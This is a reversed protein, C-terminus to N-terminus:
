PIWRSVAMLTLSFLIPLPSSTLPMPLRAGSSIAASLSTDVFNAGCESNIQEAASPYTNVIDAKRNSTAAQYIQMIQRTCSGCSPAATEPLTSNLPLYYLYSNSPTTNNTIANTFCYNSSTDDKDILCTAKYVTGYAKMGQHTQVVLANETEFEKGCNDDDILHSALDNFYDTCKDVDSACAADLVQTIGFRSKEAEFFAQSGQLLLSIPYCAKFTENPLFSNIFNPCSPDSFNAAFGGYLPSPLPVTPARAVAMPDAAKTISSVDITVETTMTGDAHGEKADKWDQEQDSAADRRRLEHHDDGSMIQWHGNVFVPIRTDILLVETESEIEIDVATEAAIATPYSNIPTGADVANVVVAAASASASAASLSIWCSALLFVVTRPMIRTPISPDNSLPGRWSWVWPRKRVSIAKAETLTVWPAIESGLLKRGDRNSSCKHSHSENMEALERENTSGRDVHRNGGAPM